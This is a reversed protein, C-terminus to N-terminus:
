VSNVEIKPLAIGLPAEPFIRLCNEFDISERQQADAHVTFLVAPLDPLDRGNGTLLSEPSSRLAAQYRGAKMVHM